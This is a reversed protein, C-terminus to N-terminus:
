GKNDKKKNVKQKTDNIYIGLILSITSAFYSKDGNGTALQLMSFALVASSIIFKAIFELYEKDINCVSGCCSKVEFEEDAEYLMKKGNKMIFSPSKKVDVKLNQEIERKEEVKIKDM